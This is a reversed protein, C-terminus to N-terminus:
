LYFHEKFLWGGRQWKGWALDMTTAAAEGDEEPQKNNNVFNERLGAPAFADSPTTSTWALAV